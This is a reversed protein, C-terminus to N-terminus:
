TDDRQRPIRITDYKIHCKGVQLSITKRIKLYKRFVNIHILIFYFCMRITLYMITKKFYFLVILRM